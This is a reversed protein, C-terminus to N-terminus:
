SDAEAPAVYGIERLFDEQSIEAKAVLISCDLSDSIYGGTSGSWWRQLMSQKRHGVVVLDACVKKAYAVIVQSPEGCVLKADVSFGLQGLAKVAEELIREHTDQQLAIAGAHASEAMRMGPTDGVVALIYLKAGFRRGLLAGERLATRGERTGDYAVLIRKYM